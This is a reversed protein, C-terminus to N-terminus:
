PGGERRVTYRYVHVSPFPSNSFGVALVRSAAAVRPVAASSWLLRGTVVHVAHTRVPEAEAVSPTERTLRGVQVLAVTDAVITVNVIADHANRQDPAHYTVSGRPDVEIRVALFEPVQVRWRVGGQADFAQVSGLLPSAALILNREAHCALTHEALFRRLMPADGPRGSYFSRLHEGRYSYRHLLDGERWGSMVISERLTCIRTGHFDLRWETYALSDRASWRVVNVRSNAPDIVFLSGDAGAAIARPERLEGPGAGPRGFTAVHRGELTYFQVRKEARDLVAFGRGEIIAAGDVLGFSTGPPGEAVGIRGVRDFQIEPTTMLLVAGIAAGHRVRSHTMV